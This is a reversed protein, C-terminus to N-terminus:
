RRRMEKNLSPILTENMFRKDIIGGKINLQISKRSGGSLSSQIKDLADQTRGSNFDNLAEEGVATTARANLISETGNENARIFSVDKGKMMGGEFFKQQSILAVQTATVAGALGALIPGAFPGGEAYARTVALAGNILAEGIAVGKRIGATRRNAQQIEKQQKNDLQRLKEDREAKIREQAEANGEAGKIQESFEEEIKQRRKDFRETIANQEIQNVNNLITSAQAFGESIQQMTQQRKQLRAEEEQASIETLEREMLKRSNFEDAGQKVREEHALRSLERQRSNEDMLALSVEQNLEKIKEATEEAEKRKQEEAKAQEEAQKKLFNEYDSQNKEAEKRRREESRKAEKEAQEQAQRRRQQDRLIRAQRNKEAKKAEREQKKQQEEQEKKAKEVRAIRAEAEPSLKFEAKREKGFFEDVEKAIQSWGLVFESVEEALFQFTDVALKGFSEIAPQATEVGLLIDDFVETLIPILDQGVSQALGGFTTEIRLLQDNFREAKEGTEQDFVIGLNEAEEAQAKLADSGQNLLNIMNKGSKGFIEQAKASKLVGDPMEKFKDSVEFLIEDAEKFTGDAKQVSIGLDTFASQAKKSGNQADLATKSLKSLGKDVVGLDTGALKASFSMSSLFETSVGLERSMKTLKDQSEAVGSALNFMAKAGAVAGAGAVAVGGSFMRLAKSAKESAQGSSKVNKSFKKVKASGKDDVVIQFELAM